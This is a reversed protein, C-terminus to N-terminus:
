GSGTFSTVVIDRGALSVPIAVAQVLTPTKYKNKELFHLMEPPLVVKEDLTTGGRGRGEGGDVSGKQSEYHKSTDNVSSKGVIHKIGSDDGKKKDKLNDDPGLQSFSMIPDVPVSVHVDNNIMWHDGAGDNSHVTTLPRFAKRFPQYMEKSHDIAPLHEIGNSRRRQEEDIGRTMGDDGTGDDNDNHGVDVGDDYDKKLTCGAKHFTRDIATRANTKALESFGDRSRAYGESFGNVEASNGTITGNTGGSVVSWHSTAEEENEM